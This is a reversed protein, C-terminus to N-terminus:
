SISHWSFSSLVHVLQSCLGFFVKFSSDDADLTNLPTPFLYDLFLAWPPDSSNRQLDSEDPLWRHPQPWGPHWSGLQWGEYLHKISDGRELLHHTILCSVLFSIFSSTLAFPPLSFWSFVPFFFFFLFLSLALPSPLFFVFLAPLFYPYHCSCFTPFAPVKRRTLLACLQM